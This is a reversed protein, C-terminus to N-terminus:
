NLSLDIRLRTTRANAVDATLGEFFQADLNWRESHLMINILSQLEPMLYLGNPPLKIFLALLIDLQYALM